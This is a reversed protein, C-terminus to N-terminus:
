FDLIGGMGEQQEEQQQQQQRWGHPFGQGTPDQQVKLVGDSCIFSDDADVVIVAPTMTVGFVQSLQARRMTDEFPVGWWPGMALHHGYLTPDTDSSVFIVEFQKGQAKQSALFPGLQSMAFQYGTGHNAFYLVRVKGALVESAEKTEGRSNTLPGNVAQSLPVM